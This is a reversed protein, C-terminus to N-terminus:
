AGDRDDSPLGVPCCDPLLRGFDGPEVMRNRLLVFGLFRMFLAIPHEVDGTDRGKFHGTV